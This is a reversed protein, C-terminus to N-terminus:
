NYIDVTWKSKVPTRCMDLIGWSHARAHGRIGGGRLLLRTARPTHGLREDRGGCYSRTGWEERVKRLTPVLHSAAGTKVEEFIEDWVCWRPAKSYRFDGLWQPTRTRPAWSEFV